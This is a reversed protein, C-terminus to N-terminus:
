LFEFRGCVLAGEKARMHRDGAANAIREEVSFFDRAVGNLDEGFGRALPRRFRVRFLFDFLKANIPLFGADGSDYGM